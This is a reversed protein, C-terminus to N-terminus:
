EWFFESNEEHSVGDGTFTGAGATENGLNPRSEWNLVLNNALFSRCIDFDNVKKFKRINPKVRVDDNGLGADVIEQIASRM